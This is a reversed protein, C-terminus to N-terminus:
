SSICAPCHARGQQVEVSLSGLNMRIVPEKEHCSALCRGHDDLMARVHQECKGCCLAVGLELQLEDFTDVGEGLIKRIHRDSVSKCVCVIM